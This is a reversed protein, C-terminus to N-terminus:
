NKEGVGVEFFEVAHKGMEHQNCAEFAHLVTKPNKIPIWATLCACIIPRHPSSCTQQELGTGVESLRWDM